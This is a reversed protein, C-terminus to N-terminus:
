ASLSVALSPSSLAGHRSPATQGEPLPLSPPSSSPLPLPSSASSHTSPLSSPTNTSPLPRSYLYMLSSAPLPLPPSSLLLPFISRVESAFQVGGLSTLVTRSSFLPFSEVCRIGRVVRGSRLRLSFLRGVGGGRALRTSRFVGGVRRRGDRVIELSERTCSGGYQLAFSASSRTQQSRFPTATEAQKRQSAPPRLPHHQTSQKSTPQSSRRRSRCVRRM